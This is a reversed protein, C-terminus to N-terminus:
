QKRSIVPCYLGQLERNWWRHEQKLQEPESFTYKYLLARLYVPPEGPFPNGELLAMVEPRGEIIRYLLNMLWPSREYTQLAAFWMQWDLRPMYPAVFLPTRSVHGPKYPFEYPTWDRGNMSGEIVIEPRSTTMREFLGYQNVSRFPTIASVASILPKPWPIDPKITSAFLVISVALVLLALPTRIVQACLINFDSTELPQQTKSNEFWRDDLLFLCLAMTLLNFFGFNGTASILIQLLIFFVFAVLRSLRSLFIMVPMFLEVFFMMGAAIKLFWSPAHHFYWATWAPLPQTWFHYALATLDRWAPDAGHLKVYGSSFMLRFLLWFFLLIVFNSPFPNRHPRSRLVPPSILIALFGAELLLNDWQYGLFVQGATALSLYIIWLVTTCLLPVLGLILLISFMMGTICLGSLMGDGSSIWLLTPLKWFASSGIQDHVQDLYRSVPLIGNEGFLGASQIWLSYIAILYVVGLIRLFLNAAYRFSHRSTIM